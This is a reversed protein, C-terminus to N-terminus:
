PNATREVRYFAGGNTASNDTFVSPNITATNTALSVWNSVSLDTARQIIYTLGINAPYTFQFGTPSPQLIGGVTLPLPTVVSIAVANTTTVGRADAAIASLTYSGAALNNTVAAFPATTQNALVTTGVLFQVNTVSGGADSASAKIAVNAPASLVLGSALNTIAVVPPTDVIISVSNTAKEGLADTAIASLTYSGAALNTATTFPATTVNALVTTGALFQVNSVTSDSDSVSTQIAVSAPFRFVTGTAPSTISIVPPVTPATVNLTGVMGISAHVTCEYPFTGATTFKNTFTFPSNEIISGQNSTTGGSNPFLWVLTQHNSSPTTSSESVVNHDSSGSTWTWVVTDGVNAPSTAPSFFDNGVSINVTAGHVFLPLGLVLSSAALVTNFHNKFSQKPSFTM